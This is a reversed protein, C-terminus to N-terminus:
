RQFKGAGQGADPVHRQDRRCARGHGGRGGPRPVAQSRGLVSSLHLCFCTDPCVYKLCIFHTYSHLPKNNRGPCDPHDRIETERLAQDTEKRICISEVIKPDKFLAVMETKTLWKRVGRRGSRCSSKITKYVVSKQWNGACQMFDDYLASM